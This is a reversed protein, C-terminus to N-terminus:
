FSFLKDDTYGVAKLNPVCAKELMIPPGCMVCLSDDGAPFLAKKVMDLNIFGASYAWGAPPRDLTYHVEFNPHAAALADLEKRLLIDDETQNAFLLRLRTDPDKEVTLIYTILQWCPTIGTGGAIMSLQKVVGRKGHITYAGQGLYEMEGIPGKVEMTQGVNLDDLFQSMKGGHPFRPPSPYYVKVLLDVHGPTEDGTLPTYARIITDGKWKGYTLFHQGVPLGLTHEESPLAFRLVVTNHSTQIKKALKLRVKQKPRLTTLAQDATAAAEAAPPGAPAAAPGAVADVHGVLYADLMALAKKSHIADFEEKTEEGELNMLISAAGGPHAEVFNTVDYVRGDYVMWADDATNHKAIEALAYGRRQAEPLAPADGGPHFPLVVKPAGAAAAGQHTRALAEAIFRAEAPGIRPARRRGALYGGAFATAAVLLLPGAAAM